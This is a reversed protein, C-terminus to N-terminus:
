LHQMLDSFLTSESLTCADVRNFLPLLDGNTRITAETDETRKGVCTGEDEPLSKRGYVSFRDFACSSSLAGVSPSSGGDAHYDVSPM